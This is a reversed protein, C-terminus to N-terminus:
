IHVVTLLIMACYLTIDYYHFLYPVVVFFL